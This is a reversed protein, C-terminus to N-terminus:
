AYLFTLRHALYDKGDIRIYVYGLKNVYGAKKGAFRTNLSQSKYMKGISYLEREKWTFIGTDPDYHLISKLYEQTLEM